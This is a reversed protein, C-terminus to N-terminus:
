ESPSAPRPDRCLPSCSGQRPIGHHRRPELVSEPVAPHGSAVPSRPVSKLGPEDLPRPEPQRGPGPVHTRSGPADTGQGGDRQTICTTLSFACPAATTIPRRALPPQGAPHPQHSFTRRTRYDPSPAGIASPPRGTPVPLPMVRPSRRRFARRSRSRPSRGRSPATIPM